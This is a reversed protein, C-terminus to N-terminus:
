MTKKAPVSSDIKATLKGMISAPRSMCPRPTAPGRPTEIASIRSRKSPRAMAWTIDKMVTTKMRTGTMAGLRPWAMRNTASQRAMKTTSNM